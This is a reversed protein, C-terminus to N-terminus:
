QVINIDIQERVLVELDQDARMLDWLTYFCRVGFEATHIITLKSLISLIIKRVDSHNDIVMQTFQMFKEINITLKEKEEEPGARPLNSALFQKDFDEQRISCM